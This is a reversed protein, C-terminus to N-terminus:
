FQSSYPFFGKMKNEHEMQNIIHINLCVEHMCSWLIIECIQFTNSFFKVIKFYFHSAQPQNFIVPFGREKNGLIDHKSIREHEM